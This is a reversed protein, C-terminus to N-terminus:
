RWDTVLKEYAPFYLFNHSVGIIRGANKAHQQLDQCDAVRHCLPKEIFADVGAELIQRSTLYHIHPPTLVHVVDLKETSLMEDLNGYVQPIGKAQAFQEALRRNIDCIARVEVNPLLRLASLHFDSIYGAGLIAVSVTLSTNTM